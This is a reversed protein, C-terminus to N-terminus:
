RKLGKSNIAAILLLLWGAIFFLGGVPTIIGIKELSTNESIKIATIAYLSGSFFLIGIIFCNGAWKLLRSGSSLIAVAVLALAHYMQYQVATQFSHLIKEDATINQLGHAGFAGLVVATGGFLAALIYFTRHM